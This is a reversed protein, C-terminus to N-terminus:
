STSYYEYSSALGIFLDQVDDSTTQVRGAWYAKGTADAMRDLVVCYVGAYASAADTVSTTSCTTSGSMGAVRLNASESSNIFGRIVQSRTKTGATLTGAWYSIDGASGSRNLLDPYLATVFATNTGGSQTFYESSSLLNVELSEYTGNVVLSSGASLEGSTPNRGFTVQYSAYTALNGFESSTLVASVVSSRTAGNDLVTKQWLLENATPSRALFDQYLRTVFKENQTLASAPTSAMSLSGLVLAVVTATMATVKMTRQLM